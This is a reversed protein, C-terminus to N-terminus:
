LVGQWKLWRGYLKRRAYRSMHWVRSRPLHVAKIGMHLPRDYDSIRNDGIHLMAAPAIKLDACIHEFLKGSSKGLGVDASSYGRDLPCDPALAAILARIDTSPLYMDSAFIIIKGVGKAEKALEVLKRNPRVITKEYELEIDWLHPMTAPDLQLHEVKLRLIDKFHPEPRFGSADESRYSIECARLQAKLFDTPTLANQTQSSLWRCQRRSVQVFRYLESETQRLLLTDFVDLSVVRIAADLM